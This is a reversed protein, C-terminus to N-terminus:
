CINKRGERGRGEGGEAFGVTKLNSWFGSGFFHAEERGEGRGWVGSVWRGVRFGKTRTEDVELM